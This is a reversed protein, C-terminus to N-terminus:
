ERGGGGEERWERGIRDGEGVERGGWTGGERM